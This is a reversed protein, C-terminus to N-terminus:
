QLKADETKAEKLIPIDPDPDADKWLTLLDKYAALAWPAMACRPTARGVNQLRDQAFFACSHPAAEEPNQLAMRTPDSCFSMKLHERLPYSLAEACGLGLRLYAVPSAPTIAAIELCLVNTGPPDCSLECLM